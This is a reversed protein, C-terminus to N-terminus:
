SINKGTEHKYHKDFEIYKKDNKIKDFEKNDDYFSILVNELKDNLFKILEKYSAKDNTKFENGEIFKIIQQNNYQRNKKKIDIGYLLIEKMAEGKHQNKKM